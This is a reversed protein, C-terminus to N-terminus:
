QMELALQPAHSADSTAGASAAKHKRRVEAIHEPMEDGEDYAEVAWITLCAECVTARFEPM